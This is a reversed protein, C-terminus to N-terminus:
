PTGEAAGETEDDILEAEIVERSDESIAESKLMDKLEAARNADFGDRALASVEGRRMANMEDLEIGRRGVASLDMVKAIRRIPCKKMMEPEHQPVKWPSPRGNSRRIVESKIADLEERDMVEFQYLAESYWVRAYAHTVQGRNKQGGQGLKHVIVNAGEDVEFTDGERVLTGKVMQVRPSGLMLRVFGRYGIMMTAKGKFPVLFAEGIPSGLELGIEAAQIVSRVISNPECKLLDPNRTLADLIVGAAREPTLAAGAPIIAAIEERKKTLANRVYKHRDRLSALAMSTGSM